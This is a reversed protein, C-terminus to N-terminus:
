PYKRPSIVNVNFRSPQQSQAPHVPLFLTSRASLPLRTAPPTGSLHVSGHAAARPDLAGEPPMANKFHSKCCIHCFM